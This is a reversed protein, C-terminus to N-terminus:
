GPRHYSSRHTPARNEEFAIRDDVAAVFGPEFDGHSHGRVTQWRARNAPVALFRRLSGGHIKM